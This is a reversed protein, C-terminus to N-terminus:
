LGIAYVHSMHIFKFRIAGLDSKLKQYFLMSAELMGYIASLVVVYITIKGKEFIVIDEYTQPAIQTDSTNQIEDAFKVAKAMTSNCNDVESDVENVQVYSLKAPPRRERGSRRIIPEEDTDSEIVDDEHINEEIDNKVIEEMADENNNGEDTERMTKKHNNETHGSEQDQVGKNEDFVEIQKSQQVEDTIVSAKLDEVEEDTIDDVDSLDEDEQVATPKCDKDEFEDFQFDMDVVALDPDPVILRKKNDLFKLNNGFGQM